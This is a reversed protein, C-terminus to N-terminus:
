SISDSLRVQGLSSGVLGELKAMVYFPVSLIHGDLSINHESIRVGLAIKKQEMFSHLSRLSGTSGSKVEIPVIKSEITKVFDVEATGASESEWFLLPLNSHPQANALLEQGVFQEALMGANIQLLGKDFFEQANVNCATQLLGIDLFLLKFRHDRIHSHLPLGSATTAFVQNILGAHALLQLAPKLDRSRADREIHTYKLIQGILSPTKQFIMQLYKHQVQTAYKGFDSQYAQLIRDHVKQAEIFSNTEVYAQVAAPMGGVYFYQRVWKLLESHETASLPEEQTLTALRGYVIPACAELFESFSLPRLYLFEVRGVPFSYRHDNLLFEILSGAAIVHLEPMLEKFYRLSVLADPCEQIEDFFLLTKGATIKQKLLLELERIIQGPDRVSFANKLHPYREFDAVVFNEFHNRGFYEILYSKGVQRAGRLLLPLHEKSNKWAILKPEISRKM